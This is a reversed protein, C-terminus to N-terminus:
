WALRKRKEFPDVGHVHHWRSADPADVPTKNVSTGLLLYTRLLESGAPVRSSYWSYALDPILKVEESYM